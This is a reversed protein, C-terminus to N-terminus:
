LWGRERALLAAQFRNTADLRQMLAAVHKRYTRVSIGLDRAGSEDKDAAYLSKLIKREIETPLGDGADPGDAGVPLEQATDWMREFLSVLAAVLGAERTLIAGKATNAPDIPTLAAARDCIIVRELPQHSVRIEAGKAALERLYALTTPDDLAGSGMLTRMRIGRRLIRLDMARSNAIGQPSLTGRPYTTLSETRTFFTLEDIAARVEDLGELHQIPAGGREALAAGSLAGAEREALLSDVIGTSGVAGELEERREKVRLEVLREVAKAPPVPRLVGNTGEVALGLGTIRRCAEGPDPAPGTPDDEPTGSLEGPEAGGTRLLFRYLEEDEPAVGLFELDPQAM